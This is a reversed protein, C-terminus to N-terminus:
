SRFPGSQSHRSLAPTLSSPKPEEKTLLWRQIENQKIRLRRALNHLRGTLDIGRTFITGETDLWNANPNTILAFNVGSRLANIAAEIKEGMSGAPFHGELLKLLAQKTQFYGINQQNPTDWNLAVNEVKTDTSIILERAKLDRALLASALDKDIVAELPDDECIAVGGGGVAIVIYGKKNYQRIEDLEDKRIRVPKPSPVVERYAKEEEGKKVKAFISEKGDANILKYRDPKLPMKYIKGLKGSQLERLSYSDGIPKTPNKFAPDANNVIVRTPIVVVKIHKGREEAVKLLEQKLTEGM